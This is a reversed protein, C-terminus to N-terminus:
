GETWHPRGFMRGLREDLADGIEDMSSVRYVVTGRPPPLRAAQEDDLRSRM